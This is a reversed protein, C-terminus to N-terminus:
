ELLIREKAKLYEEAIRPPNNKIIKILEKYILFVYGDYWLQLKVGM